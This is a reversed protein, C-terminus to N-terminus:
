ADRTHAFSLTAAVGRQNTALAVLRDIGVAVGACDPLGAALAALFSEDVPPVHRGANRRVAQDAAFRRRQESADTLEHFGNALELSGGAPGIRGSAEADGRAHVPTPPPPRVPETRVPEAAAAGGGCGSPLGSLMLLLSLARFTTPM